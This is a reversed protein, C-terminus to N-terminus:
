FYWCHTDPHIEPHTDSYHGGLVAGGSRTDFFHGVPVADSFLTDLYYGSIVPGFVSYWFLILSNRRWLWLILFTDFSYWFFILLYWFPILLYWFPILPVETCFWIILFTDFSYWHCKPVSNPVSQEIGRFKPVSSRVSGRVSKSSVQDHLSPALVSNRSVGLFVPFM